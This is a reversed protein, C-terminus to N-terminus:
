VQGILREPCCVGVGDERMKTSKTTTKKYISDQHPPGSQYYIPVYRPHDHKSCEHYCLFWDRSLKFSDTSLLCRGRTSFSPETTNITERRKLHSLDFLRPHISRLPRLHLSTRIRFLTIHGIVKFIVGEASRFTSYSHFSQVIKNAQNALEVKKVNM